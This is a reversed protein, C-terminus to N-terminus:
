STLFKDACIENAEPSSVLMTTGLAAFDDRFPALVTLEPDVLPVVLSIKREVCIEKLREVYYPDTVRPVLEHYGAVFSTPVSRRLDATVVTGDLGLKELAAVFLHILEVRRGASTFLINSRAM